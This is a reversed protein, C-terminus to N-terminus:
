YVDRRYRGQDVLEAVAAEGLLERLVRDVGSAMGALSGCVYLAAGQELWRRLEDANARLRDQVYLKEAQDRSFALDLRQLEGGALWGQLEDRCYFDHAASREGFLLWNRRHGAGIRAKLLSRLGALGTGNGILILPRDDEPVHFAGNRRVRARLSQGPQLTETLRGSGLGLGGDARRQQRVILELGGDGPLSAISYDRSAGKGVPVELIDGAQWDVPTAPQLRILFTPAGASGPNVCERRQLQWQAYPEAAAEPAATGTLAALQRRWDALAADDGDDVQVPAFLSHAGQGHLWHHLRLAFGCFQQYQRDGLALVAYRLSSLGLAQGLLAREFGRASDPAQGDGFTSVVFLAQQVQRLRQEDLRALPQVEVALGAAQLQGATQWALREAFGSQSAFGILWADAGGTTPALAGRVARLARRNRRRELYLLWGTIAFLPMALSALMMLLRGPLGFYSGVHLAYVSSLLQAGFPQEAYRQQREVAGSLPDLQLQNFARTHPADDLLYFLTAPQGAAAPLRLNWSALRAGTADQIARWLREHDVSPPPGLPAEDRGGRREGPKGRQQGAPAEGFLQTLGDRYWDYSWYLGTLAACLYFALCWTGAVAHLDWNFARGRKAWDLSLWARWSLAQRPWRLYLGSLCFFLLALTCAGTVQKGTEGMALFRHLRLMLDFFSQGRPEALLEARYPDFYRMPGRREGPAPAFNVRAARGTGPELWLGVVRQGSAVELRPVLEAPPLVGRASAEVRLVEPNLARLLEDQFSYAAGTLGMLALVLGASIGFLWHLQFLVKKFM